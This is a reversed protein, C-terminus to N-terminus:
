IVKLIVWFPWLARLPYSTMLQNFEYVKRNARSIDSRPPLKCVFISEVNTFKKFEDLSEIPNDILNIPQTQRRSLRLDNTGALLVVHLLDEANKSVFNPAPNLCGDLDDGPKTLKVAPINGFKMNKPNM